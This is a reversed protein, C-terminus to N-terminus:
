RGVARVGWTQGPRAQLLEVGHRQQEAGDVVHAVVGAAREGGVPQGGRLGHRHHWRAAVGHEPEDRAAGDAGGGSGDQREMRLTGRGGPARLAPALQPGPETEDHDTKPITPDKALRKFNKDNVTLRQM